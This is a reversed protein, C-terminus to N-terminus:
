KNFELSTGCEMCFKANPIIKTGCNVCYKISSANDHNENNPFSNVSSLVISDESNMSKKSNNNKLRLLDKYIEEAEDLRKKNFVCQIDYRNYFKFKIIGSTFLTPKSFTIEKVDEFNFKAKNGWGSTSVGKEDYKLQGSPSLQLIRM